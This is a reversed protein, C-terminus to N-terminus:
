EKWKLLYKEYNKRWQPTGFNGPSEHIASLPITGMRLNQKEIQRCFDLDYFHFDFMEDFRINNTELLGKKTALFVGDMLKCAQGPPGYISLQCPFQRGHGVAGSLNSPHDWTFKEDLFAWAPQGPVRRKNGALGLLDFHQFGWFIKDIWFFDVISVDDHLFVLIEQADITSSIADNYCIPLPRANNFYLKKKLPFNSYTNSLSRGLASKLFFDSEGHRSASVITIPLVTDSREKACNLM